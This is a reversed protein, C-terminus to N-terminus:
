FSEAKARSNSGEARLAERLRSVFDANEQKRKPEVRDRSFIVPKIKPDALRIVDAVIRGFAVVVGPNQVAKLWPGLWYGASLHKRSNNPFVHGRAQAIHIRM